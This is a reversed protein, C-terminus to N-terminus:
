WFSPIIPLSVFVAGSRSCVVDDTIAAQSVLASIHISSRVASLRAPHVPLWVPGYVWCFPAFSILCHKVTCISLSARSDVQHWELAHKETVSPLFGVSPYFLPRSPFCLKKHHGYTRCKPHDNVAFPNWSLGWLIINAQGTLKSGTSIHPRHIFM